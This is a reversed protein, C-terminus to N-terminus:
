SKISKKKAPSLEKEPSSGTGTSANINKFGPLQDSNKFDGTAGLNIKM